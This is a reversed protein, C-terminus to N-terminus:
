LLILKHIQPFRIVLNEHNLNCGAKLQSCCHLKGATLDFCDIDESYIIKGCSNPCLRIKKVIKNNNDCPGMNNKRGRELNRDRKILIGEPTKQLVIQSPKDLGYERAFRKPIVLTCSCNGTLWTQAIQKQKEEVM